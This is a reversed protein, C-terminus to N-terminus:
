DDHGELWDIADSIWNPATGRDGTGFGHVESDVLRLHCRVGAEKLANELMEFNKSNVTLDRTSGCIYTAPYDPGIHNDASLLETMKSDGIDSGMFLKRSMPHSLEGMTVVPYGLIQMKPSLLGYDSLGIDSRACIACLHGGASFGAIGFGKPDIGFEKANALIDKMASAVDIVPQPYHAEEKVGYDIVFANYGKRNLSLAVSFGENPNSCFEYGGGPLIAFFPRNREKVLFAFYPVGPHYKKVILRDEEAMDAMTEFNALHFADSRNSEVNWLYDFTMKMRQDARFDHFFFADKLDRFAPHALVEFLTMDKTFRAMAITYTALTANVIEFRAKALPIM